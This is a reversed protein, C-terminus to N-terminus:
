RRPCDDHLYHAPWLYKNDETLGMDCFYFNLQLRAVKEKLIYSKVGTQKDIYEEFYPHRALDLM